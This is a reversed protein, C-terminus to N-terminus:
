HGRFAEELWWSGHDRTVKADVLLPASRPGAVWDAVAKLDAPSRVTAAEFGYGRAIAAIDTEPFTVTDLPHGDPGFHHVEAGYAEDNYVVVVMPLGLRRVTDLEVASMLAGGDGLAAVPLRDPRALAAGITTALGLGISQFAQTFCFGDQDPVSLYASPYGMFNGSDVGVIREAPLMDDLAISLTRPDIRDRTSEDEYPVDRWRVRAALAEAVDPARYGDREEGAAELARVATRTVDGTVGLAIERHAGLAEPDDDVQVVTAGAGILNGHRMTWMNLACGWGVILDAGQILEAALPSAFGGSVDLTWPSGHFLGRAVASTALLAGHRDALATLADRAAPTRAGRGAVFVPRRARELARVLDAVARESPEVPEPGPLPVADLSIGAPVDLAQVELPLNLLVTRREHVARRLAARAQDVADHATTLRASVAGVSHALVAQEVRFNSHQATAEAALVLLPTRSKAAETIGTLANTLGPGQHVSLAAVTASTRTYADAMTAAGGEHRAAVFRAGAAVMANTLHFNGSGVVGFVHDVGAATLARGVAEAVKM